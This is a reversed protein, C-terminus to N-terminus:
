VPIKSSLKKWRRKMRTNCSTPCQLNMVLRFEESEVNVGGSTATMEGIVTGFFKTPEKSKHLVTLVQTEEGNCEPIESEPDELTFYRCCHEVLEWSDDAKRILTSRMPWWNINWMLQANEFRKSSYNFKFPNGDPGTKWARLGYSECFFDHLKMVTQVVLVDNDDKNKPTPFKGQQEDPGQQVRNITGYLALSNKRFYLPIMCQADPAQLQVGTETTGPCLRWGRQLLRGMSVLPTQVSAVVFDDEIVVSGESSDCEIQALKRGYTALQSGQADELVAKGLVQSTGRDAMTRPLLSIDAGSDLVILMKEDNAKVMNVHFVMPKTEESDEMVYRRTPWGAYWRLTKDMWSDEVVEDESDDALSFSVVNVKYNDDYIWSDGGESQLDYLLPHSTEDRPTAVHYLRVQRVQKSTTTSATSSTGLGRLKGGASSAIESESAGATSVAPNAQTVVNARNPCENGWHGQQGCIRCTNSNNGGKGKGVSHFKGKGKEGKKGKGKKGGNKGKQYKGGSKGGGHPFPIWGGKKGKGKKGGKYKGKGVQNVSDVEMPAPGNANSDLTNQVLKLYTDGSWTRSNKGMLILKEKLTGYNVSDDLTLELHKRISPEVCRLVTSVVLDDPMTHGSAVRYQDLLLDLQLLNEMMSKGAKFPPLGIIAQGIAMTRPRARPLYLNRLQQWVLFGNRDEAAAKVFQAAPGRVYSALIAYLRHGLEVIEESAFEALTCPEDLEEVQKLLDVYRHDGYTLWNKFSDSWSVFRLPDDVEFAEPSKLVKSAESFSGRNDKRDLREAVMASSRAATMTAETLQMMHNFMRQVQEGDMAHSSTLLSLFILTKLKLKMEFRHKLGGNWRRTRSLHGKGARKKCECKRLMRGLIKWLSAKPEVGEESAELVGRPCRKKRGSQSLEEPICHLLNLLSVHQCGGPGLGRPLLPPGNACGRVSLLHLAEWALLNSHRRPKSFATKASSGVQSAFGVCAQWPPSTVFSIGQRFVVWM